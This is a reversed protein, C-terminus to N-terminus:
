AAIRKQAEDRERRAADGAAQRKAVDTQADELSGLVEALTKDLEVARAEADSSKQREESVSRDREDAVAKAQELLGIAQQLVGGLKGRLSHPGPDTGRGAAASKHSGSVRGAYGEASCAIFIKTCACENPGATASACAM